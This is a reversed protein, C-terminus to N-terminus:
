EVWRIERGLSIRITTGEGPASQATITHGLNTCIRQCLYLGLGSAKKDRRGHYGTYGKQFIRPLDEPAIGMGNDRICLTAPGELEVWVEGGDPTYKLANSLVQEVVFALWKEDTLVRVELPQYHLAMHRRIFQTSFKRVAGRVIGDLEYERFLYDTSESDLRLFALVMEVYQEIRMLEELQQRAVTSDQSQLTLRMSAIPTKIQHAWVTYYDVMDGYRRQMDQERERQEQRLHAIIRQYDRDDQGTAPPFDGMVSGSLQALQELRRHKDRARRVELGLFICGLVGCLGVPYLVAGLPLRYLAFIVVFILSFLLFVGVGKRRDRLYIVLDKM